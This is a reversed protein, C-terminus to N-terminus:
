ALVRKLMNVKSQDLSTWDDYLIGGTDGSNPNLCWYAFHIRNNKIFDVLYNQWIGEKSTTDSKHGGFEGIWIPASNSTHITAWHKNWVNNMNSPFTPDNFWPQNYVGPGYDHPSYVVKNPTNLNVKLSSAGALNGGWWYTDGNYREVGEVIILWNPAVSLLANGCREAAKNWDTGASSTGWTASGHPENHLDAAIVIDKNKYREAMTKWDNIWQAESVQATYWLESQADKNPRHRDLIVYLGIDKCRDIMYDLVELSKKGNLNPNAAYNIGNPMPNHIIDNSWPIRISNFGLSKILKLLDEMNRTWIGHVVFNATEFGFWSISKLWVSQGGPSIIEKGRTTWGACGVMHMTAILAIFISLLKSM